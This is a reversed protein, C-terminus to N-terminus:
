VVTYYESRTNTSAAHTLPHMANRECLPATIRLALVEKDQEPWARVALGCAAGLRGGGGGGGGSGRGGGKDREGERVEGGM